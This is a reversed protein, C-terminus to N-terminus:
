KIANGDRVNEYVMNYRKLVTREKERTFLHGDDDVYLIGSKEPLRVATLWRGDRDFVEVERYPDTSYEGGLIFLYDTRRDVALDAILDGPPLEKYATMSSPKMPAQAPWTAVSFVKRINNGADYLTVNNMFRHAVVLENRSTLSLHAMNLVPEERVESLRVKSLVKGDPSLKMLLEDTNGSFPFCNVYVDGTADCAADIIIGPAAIERIMAFQKDFFRIRSSGQEMIGITAGAGLMKYPIGQFEATGRGRKGFEKVFVGGASFQKVSFRYTDTVLLTGTRDCLVEDIGIFTGDGGIRLSEVLSIRPNAAPGSPFTGSPAPAHSVTGSPAPRCGVCAGLAFILALPITIRLRM